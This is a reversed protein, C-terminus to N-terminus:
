VRKQYKDVFNQLLTPLAFNSLKEWSISKDIFDNTEIIWFSTHLHQHTLKHVIQKQNFKSIHYSKQFMLNQLIPNKTLEKINIQSKSELLPFEYLNRWIDNNNRKNILTGENKSNIILYNFYRKKINIKNEKIPM